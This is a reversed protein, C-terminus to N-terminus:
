IARPPISGGAVPKHSRREVTQAISGRRSTRRIMTLKRVLGRKRWAIYRERKPQTIIPLIKAM